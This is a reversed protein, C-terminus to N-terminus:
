KSSEKRNEDEEKKIRRKAKNKVLHHLFLRSYISELLRSEYDWFERDSMKCIENFSKKKMLSVNNANTKM